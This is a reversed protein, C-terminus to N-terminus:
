ISPFLEDSLTVGIDAYHQYAELIGELSGSNCIQSDLKMGELCGSVEFM